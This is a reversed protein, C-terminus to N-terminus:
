RSGGAVAAVDQQEDEAPGRHYDGYYDQYYYYGIASVRVKNLVAGLLRANM